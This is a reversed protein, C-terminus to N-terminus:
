SSKIPMFGRGREVVDCVAIREETATFRIDYDGFAM